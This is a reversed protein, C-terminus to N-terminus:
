AITWETAGATACCSVILAHCAAWGRVGSVWEEGVWRAGMAALALKHPLNRGQRQSLVDWHGKVRAALAGTADLPAVVLRCLHSTLPPRAQVTCASTGVAKIMRNIPVNSHIALQHACRAHQQEQVETSLQAVDGVPWRGQRASTKSQTGPRRRGQPALTAEHCQTSGLHPAALAATFPRPAAVTNGPM